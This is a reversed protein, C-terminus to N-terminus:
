SNAVATVFGQKELIRLRKEVANKYKSLVMKDQENQTQESLTHLMMYATQYRKPCLHANGFLEDLAARQCLDIAHKYMIKEASVIALSPDAGPIGLSALEQSKLLCQHYRENLQNLVNQVAESPHLRETDVQKQAMLLASSLMHLARVYVVLQEARRYADSSQSSSRLKQEEEMIQFINNGKSDAVSILTDVLELIFKLKNLIQKHEDSMITEEELGPLINEEEEDGDIVVGGETDDITPLNEKCSAEKKNNITSSLAVKKNNDNTEDVSNESKGMENNNRKKNCSIGQYTVSNTNSTSAEDISMSEIIQSSGSNRSRDNSNDKSPNEEIVSTYNISNDNNMEEDQSEDMKDSEKTSTNKINELSPPSEKFLKVSEILSDSKPSQNENCISTLPTQATVSRPIQTSTPIKSSNNNCKIINGRSTVPIGKTQEEINGLTFRRSHEISNSIKKPENVIFKTSPVNINDVCQYSPSGSGNGYSYYTNRSTTLKMTHDLSSPSHSSQPSTGSPTKTLRRHEEIKQYSLRQSPVPVAKISSAHVQVQKVPNSYDYNPTRINNSSNRPSQQVSSVIVFDSSDAMRNNDQQHVITSPIPSPSYLASHRSSPYHIGQQSPIIKPAGTGHIKSPTSPLPRRSPSPSNNYPLQPSHHPQIIAGRQGSIINHPSRFNTVSLPNKTLHSDSRSTPCPLMTLFPHNFFDEFEIRDKPNKKLMRILLDRLYNSCNDPIPPILETAREYKTKLQQPTTAHFPAQGTLCQFVITGISWLDAKAGYNLSMIVEPAMYMPSGCLTTTMGDSTLFRAFGFDALKITIDKVKPNKIGPPKCLLINQPKLDRHVIEKGNMAELAKAIQVLFHQITREDLKRHTHLYDALDGGNCFEMVLYVYSATELCKILGVLNEHKLTSLEKLIRIEKKLLNHSKTLNKKEIAKIAVTEKNKWNRGKFVLAFAGRGILDGRNYEFDDFRELKEM